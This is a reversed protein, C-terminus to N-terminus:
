VDGFQDVTAPELINGHLHLTQLLYTGVNLRAIRHQATGPLLLIQTSRVLLFHGDVTPRALDADTMLTRQKPASVISM